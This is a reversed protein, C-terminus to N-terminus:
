YQIIVETKKSNCSKSSCPLQDQNELNVQSAMLYRRKRPNASFPKMVKETRSPIVDQINTHGPSHLVESLLKMKSIYKYAAIYGCAKSSFNVATHYTKNIFYFIPKWWTSASLKVVMHFHIGRTKTHDKLRVAYQTVKAVGRDSSFAYLVVKAFRKSCPFQQLNTQSYATLYTRRMDREHLGQTVFNNGDDSSDVDKCPIKNM